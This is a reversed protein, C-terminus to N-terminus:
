LNTSTISVKKNIDDITIIPKKNFTIAARRRTPLPLIALNFIIARNFPAIFINKMIEQADKRNIDGNNLMGNNKMVPNRKIM